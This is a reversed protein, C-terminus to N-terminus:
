ARGELSAAAPHMDFLLEFVPGQPLGDITMAADGQPKSAPTWATRGVGPLCPSLGNASAGQLDPAASSLTNVILREFHAADADDELAQMLLHHAALWWAAPSEASAPLPAFVTIPYYRGVRDVSPAMAGIWASDGAVGPGLLFGWVPATLYHEIWDAHHARLDGLGDHLWDDWRTRLAHPMRRHAFDGVGPLKGFWGPSSLSAQTM